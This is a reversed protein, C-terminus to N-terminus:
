KLASRGHFRGKQELNVLCRVKLPNEAMPFCLSLSPRDFLEFAVTPHPPLPQLYLSGVIFSILM